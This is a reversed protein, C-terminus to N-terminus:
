KKFFMRPGDRGLKECYQLLLSQHVCQKAYKRQGEGESNFAAVLLADSAGPVYVDRHAQIYQWSKEFDGIPVKSFGELVPTLQPLQAEEDNDDDEPEPSSEPVPATSGPNLVEFTTETFKKKNGKLKSLPVPEPEPKPPVYQSDIDVKITADLPFVCRAILVTTCVIM